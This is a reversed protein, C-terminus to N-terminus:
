ILGQWQYREGSTTLYYDGCELKKLSRLMKQAAQRCAGAPSRANFEGVKFHTSPGDLFVEYKRPAGHRPIEISAM